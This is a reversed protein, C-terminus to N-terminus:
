LLAGIELMGTSGSPIDELGRKIIEPVQALSVEEYSVEGSCGSLFRKKFM